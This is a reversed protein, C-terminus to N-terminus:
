EIGNIGFVHRDRHWHWVTTMVMAKCYIKFYPHTLEGVKNNKILIAKARKKPKKM